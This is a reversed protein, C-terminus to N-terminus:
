CALESTEGDLMVTRAKVRRPVGQYVKCRAQVRRAVNRDTGQCAKFINM